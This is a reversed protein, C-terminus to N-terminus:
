ELKLGIDKVIQRWRNVDTLVFKAFEEQTMPVPEGGERAFQERLQPAQLAKRLTEGSLRAGPETCGRKGCGIFGVFRYAANPHEYPRGSFLWGWPFLTAGRANRRDGRYAVPFRLQHLTHKRVRCRFQVSLRGIAFEPIRRWRRRSVYFRRLVTSIRLRHPAAVWQYDPAGCIFGVDSRRKIRSKGGQAAM